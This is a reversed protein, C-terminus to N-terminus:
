VPLAAPLSVVVTTGSPTDAIRVRGRHKTVIGHVISLGLGTGKGVEKTTFFPDFVQERLDLAIGPGDDHVSIHYHPDGTPHEDIEVTVRIKSGKPAAQCANNLLNVFVQSLQNRDGIVDLNGPVRSEFQYDRAEPSLRILTMADDLVGALEIAGLDKAGHEGAHSFGLLSHVISDIREVQKLIDSTQEEVLARADPEGVDHRLNQALSAIGTLPNGIEHAVGAALRGVSALRESHALESELTDLSTRDEVLIVQGALADDIGAPTGVDAKQLNVTLPRTAVLPEPNLGSQLDAGIRVRQVVTESSAVFNALTEGWPPALEALRRDRASREDIRTLKALSRNWLYIRDDASISCVGVPMDRLVDGLYRRLDDLQRTLGRMRERSAELRLELVQRDDSDDIDSVATRPRRPRLTHRAITPGVLGTLNRELRDHLLRLEPTRTEREDLGTEDLARQFEEGALRNGLVEQMAYRYHVGSRALAPPSLGLTGVNAVSEATLEGVVLENRNAPFIVSVLAFSVVNASLSCFTSLTWIDTTEPFWQTPDIAPTLLPLILFAFWVLAGSCLGIIFGLSTARPTILLAITGPLLQAAAVFSILGLSALGENLEIVIYFGFGAAVIAAIVLRKSWLISRYVDDTRSASLSAPLFLHNLFMSSLALTTVIMMASAASLGGIFVLIAIWENELLTAIGLVYFDPTFGADGLELFRGAFLIPVIPLNLLLLYLPFLWYATSLHSPRENEVFTMHYQRPLLFAASFALLLLTSWLGSGMPAYLETLMEPREATWRSFDQPSDFVAFMVFAGAVLLAILKVASEFAIAVVLGRHKERPSLHRAGFLVSFVVIVICFGLASAGAPVQGSLLQLSETVARIQLSLYPLIGVLMFVTVIVGSIRGGYRFALLDAISTLQHERALALLPALLRPGLLFAGTVGLYITLFAYGSTDALGVSGYFTWSTAYVGLSLSYVIPNSVLGQPLWQSDTAHAILFLLALYALGVFILSAPAISFAAGNM